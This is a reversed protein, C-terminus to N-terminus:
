ISVPGYIMWKFIYNTETHEVIFPYDKGLYLAIKGWRDAITPFSYAKKLRLHLAIEQVFRERCSSPALSKKMKLHVTIRGVFEEWLPFSDPERKM